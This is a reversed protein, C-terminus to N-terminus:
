TLTCPYFTLICSEITDKSHHERALAEISVPRDGQSPTSVNKSKRRKVKVQTDDIVVTKPEHLTEESATQLSQMLKELDSKLSSYKQQVEENFKNM